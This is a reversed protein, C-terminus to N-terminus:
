NEFIGKNKTALHRFEGGFFGRHQGTISKKIVMM